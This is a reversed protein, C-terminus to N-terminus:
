KNKNLIKQTVHFSDLAVHYAKQAPWLPALKRISLYIRVLIPNM